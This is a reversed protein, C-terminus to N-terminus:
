SESKVHFLATKDFLSKESNIGEFTHHQFVGQEENLNQRRPYAKYTLTEEEAEANGRNKQRGQKALRDDLRM